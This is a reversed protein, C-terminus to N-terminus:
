LVRVLSATLERGLLVNEEVFISMRQLHTLRFNALEQDRQHSRGLILRQDRDVKELEVTECRKFVGSGRASSV